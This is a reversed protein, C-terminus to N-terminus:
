REPFRLGHSSQASQWGYTYAKVTYTNWRPAWVGHVCVSIVAFGEQHTTNHQGHSHIHILQQNTPDTLISWHKQNFGVVYILVRGRMVKSDAMGVASDICLPRRSLLRYSHSSGCHSRFHSVYIFVYVCIYLYISTDRHIYIAFGNVIVVKVGYWWCVCLWSCWLMLVSGGVCPYICFM